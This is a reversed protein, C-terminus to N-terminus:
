YGGCDHRLFLGGRCLFLWPAKSVFFTPADLLILEIGCLTALALEVHDTDALTGADKALESGGFGPQVRLEPNLLDAGLANRFVLSSRGADDIYAVFGPGNKSQYSGSASM